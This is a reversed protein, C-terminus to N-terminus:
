FKTKLRIMVRNSPAGGVTATEGVIGLRAGGLVTTEATGIGKQEPGVPKLPRLRYREGIESRACVVVEDPKPKLCPDPASMANLDFHGADVAAAAQLLTLVIPVM